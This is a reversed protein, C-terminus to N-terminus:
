ETNHKKSLVDRLAARINPISRELAPMQVAGPISFAVSGKADVSLANVLPRLINDIFFKGLVLPEASDNSGVNINPADVIVKSDSKITIDDSAQLHLVGGEVVVKMGNRAVIRIEDSKIGIAASPEATEGVGSLDFNADIDSKMGVYVRSKDGAIDM